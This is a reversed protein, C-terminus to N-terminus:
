KIKLNLSVVDLELREEEVLTIETAFQLGSLKLERSPLKFDRWPSLAPVAFKAGM